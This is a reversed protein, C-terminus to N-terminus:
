KQETEKSKGDTNKNKMRKKRQKRANPARELTKKKTYALNGCRWKKQRVHQEENDVAPELILLLL